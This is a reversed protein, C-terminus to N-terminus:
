IKRNLQRRSLHLVAPVASPSGGTLIRHQEVFAYYHKEIALVNGATLAGELRALYEARKALNYARRGPQPSRQRRESTWSEPDPDILANM